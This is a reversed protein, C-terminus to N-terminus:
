PVFIDFIGKGLRIEPIAKIALRFDLRQNDGIKDFSFSAEWEHLDRYLKFNHDVFRESEIDFRTSYGIRWNKTLWFDLNGWLQIDDEGGREFNYNSRLTLNWPGKGM